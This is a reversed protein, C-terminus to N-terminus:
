GKSKKMAERRDKRNMWHLRGQKDAVVPNPANKGNSEYYMKARVKWAELKADNEKKIDDNV